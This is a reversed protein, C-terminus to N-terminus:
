KKFFLKKANEYFVKNIIEDADEKFYNKIATKTRSIMLEYAEKATLNTRKMTAAEGFCGFPSDTGFLVRDLRGLKKAEEIVKLVNKPNENPLDNNFDVWSIDVYLKADNNKISQKLIDIAHKHGLEGRAEGMHGMIIPVNPFRRALKYIYEPDSVDKINSKVGDVVNVHSHFLCPLHRESALALYDDYLHSDARLMLNYPHLKLGCITNPNEKILKRINNASGNTKTPQCVAMVSYFNDSRYKNIMDLNADIENKIFEIQEPHEILNQIPKQCTEPTWALGDVSSVLVKEINDVQPMNNVTVNLPQRIFTDFVNTPFKRSHWHTDESGRHVHVDIINAKFNINSYKNINNFQPAQIVNM